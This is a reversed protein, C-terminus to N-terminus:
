DNYIFVLELYDKKFYEEFNLFLEILCTSKSVLVWYNKHKRFVLYKKRNDPLALIIPCADYVFTLVEQRIIEKTCIM